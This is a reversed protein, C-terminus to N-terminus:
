AFLFFYFLAVKTVVHSIKVDAMKNAGCKAAEMFSSGGIHSFIQANSCCLWNVDRTWYEQNTPPGPNPPKIDNM